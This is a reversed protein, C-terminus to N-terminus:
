ARKSVATKYAILCMSTFVTFPEFFPGSIKAEKIIHTYVEGVANSDVETHRRLHALLKEARPFDSVLQKLCSALASAVCPNAVGHVHVFFAVVADYFLQFQAVSYDKANIEKPHDEAFFFQEAVGSAAVVFDRFLEQHESPLEDCRQWLESEVVNNTTNKHLRRGSIIEGISGFLGM